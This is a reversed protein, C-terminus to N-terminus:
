AGLIAEIEDHELKSKDKVSEWKTLMRRYQDIMPMHSDFDPKLDRHTQEGYRGLDNVLYRTYAMYITESNGDFGKFDLRDSSIEERQAPPLHAHSFTIARYMDLVDIVFRCEEAPLGDYISEFLDAYHSQYGDELAKRRLALSSAEKPYLKELILLQNVLTLREVKSLKIASEM